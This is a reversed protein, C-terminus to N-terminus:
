FDGKRAMILKRSNMIGEARTMCLNGVCQAREVYCPFNLSKLFPCLTSVTGKRFYVSVMAYKDVAYIPLPDTLSIVM